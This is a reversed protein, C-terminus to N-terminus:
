MHALMFPTPNVRAPALACHVFYLEKSNVKGNNERGFIIYALICHLYRITPNHIYTSNLGEWDTTTEGFLRQWFYFADIACDSELPGECVWGEGHPFHLLDTIQDQSFKYSVNFMRLKVTGSIHAVNSQTSYYFSSLFEYTLRVYTPSAMACFYSM